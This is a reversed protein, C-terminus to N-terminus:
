AAAPLISVVDDLPISETGTRQRLLIAWRGFPVEMGLYEGVVVADATTARYTEGCRLHNFRSRASLSTSTMM